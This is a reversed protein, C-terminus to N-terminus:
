IDATGGWHMDNKMGAVSLPWWEDHLPMFVKKRESLNFDTERELIVENLHEDVLTEQM